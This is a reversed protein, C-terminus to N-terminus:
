RKATCELVLDAKGSALDVYHVASSNGHLLKYGGLKSLYTEYIFTTNFAKDFFEDVYINTNKNLIKCNSCKIRTKGNDILFCGKGNVAYFLRKTSHEMVGSFIFDSYEPDLNSFIGFMTGYRGKGREKKYVNSGDLGDLVGLYIPNNSIEITGHEESIIRIPVNAETLVDIITKEAEIDIRLATEGFQNKQILEEGSIGLKQHIEYSKELATLAIRELQEISINM